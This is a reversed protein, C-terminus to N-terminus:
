ARSPPGRPPLPAGVLAAIRAAEISALAHALPEPQSMSQTVISAPLSAPLCMACDLTYQGAEVVDGNKDVVIVRMAGGDSCIMEMTKPAVIPSAMAVGLTLAFWALVLRILTSSTRLAHM